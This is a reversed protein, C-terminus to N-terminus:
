MPAINDVKVIFQQNDSLDHEHKFKFIINNHNRDFVVSKLLGLDNVSDDFLETCKISKPKPGRDGKNGKISDGISGKEGTNGKEGKYGLRSISM